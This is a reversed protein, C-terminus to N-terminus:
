SGLSPEKMKWKIKLFLKEQQRFLHKVMLIVTFGKIATPMSELGRAVGSLLSFSSEFDEKLM